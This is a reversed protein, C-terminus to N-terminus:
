EKHPDSTQAAQSRLACAKTEYAAALRRHAIAAEVSDSVEAAQREAQAREVYYGLEQKVTAPELGEPNEMITCGDIRLYTTRFSPARARLRVLAGGLTAVRSRQPGKPVAAPM